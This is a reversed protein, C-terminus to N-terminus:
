LVQQGLVASPIGRSDRYWRRTDVGGVMGLSITREPHNHVLTGATNTNANIPTTLMPVPRDRVNDAGHRRLVHM